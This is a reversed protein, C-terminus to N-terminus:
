KRKWAVICLELVLGIAIIFVVTAIPNEYILQM